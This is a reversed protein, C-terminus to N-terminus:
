SAPLLRRRETVATVPALLAPSTATVTIGPLVAGQEDKIYGRLSGDSQAQVSATTVVLVVFVMAFCKRLM